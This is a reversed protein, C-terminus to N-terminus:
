SRKGCCRLGFSLAEQRVRGKAEPCPDFAAGAKLSLFGKPVRPYPGPSPDGSGGQRPSGALPRWIRPHLSSSGLPHNHVPIVEVAREAIADAFM